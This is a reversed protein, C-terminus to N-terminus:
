YYQQAGASIGPRMKKHQAQSRYHAAPRPQYRAAPLYPAPETTVAIARQARVSDQECMAVLSLAGAQV